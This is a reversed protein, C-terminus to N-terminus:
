LAQELLIINAYASLAGHRVLRDRLQSPSFLPNNTYPSLRSQGLFVLM